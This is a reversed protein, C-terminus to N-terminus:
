CQEWHKKWNPHTGLIGRKSYQMIRGAFKKLRRLLSLNDAKWYPNRNPALYPSYLPQPSSQRTMNSCGNKERWLDSRKRRVAKLYDKNVMQDRPLFEHHVVGECDFLVTMMVEVNFWVNQPKKPDPHCEQSGNHLSPKQQSMMAMFGLKM